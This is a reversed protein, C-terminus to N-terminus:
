NALRRGIADAFRAASGPTKAFFLVPEIVELEMLRVVDGDILTDVRAYLPAGGIAEFVQQALALERPDPDVISIRDMSFARGALMQDKRIAHSFAGDFHILAHEGPDETAALFPQIMLDRAPLLRDVLAQGERLLSPSSVRVAERAGNGVAPKVVADSWGRDDLLGALHFSSGAAPWATPIIPIGATELERLYSKHSNWRVLHAPNHVTTVTSIRDIWALFEDLRPVYDFVTRLVVLGASAWDVSRDDWVAPAVSLGRERLEDVLPLDDPFLDGYEACTALLVDTVAMPRPNCCAVVVRAATIM